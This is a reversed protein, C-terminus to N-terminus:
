RRRRKSSAARFAGFFGTFWADYQYISTAPAPVESLKVTHKVGVAKDQGNFMPDRSPSYQMNQKILDRGEHVVIVRLRDNRKELYGEEEKLKKERAARRPDTAGWAEVVLLHDVYTAFGDKSKTERPHQNTM